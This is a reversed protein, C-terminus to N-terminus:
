YSTFVLAGGWFWLPLLFGVIVGYLCELWFLRLGKVLQMLWILPYLLYLAMIGNSVYFHTKQHIHEILASTPFANAAISIGLWLLIYDLVGAAEIFVINYLSPLSLVFGLVSNIFLPFLAAFLNKGYNEIIEADLQGTEGTENNMYAYKITYVPINMLRYAIDQFLVKIIIGPFTVITAIYGLAFSKM